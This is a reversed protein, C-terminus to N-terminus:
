WLQGYGVLILPLGGIDATNWWLQSCEVGFNAMNCWLRGYEEMTSWIGGYKLLNVMDGWLQGYEVLILWIGGIDAM